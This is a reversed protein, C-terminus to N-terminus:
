NGTFVMQLNAFDRLDTDGELDFDFCACGANVGASPGSLCAIVDAHDDLDVEGDGDCDGPIAVNQTAASWFGGALAFSGGTMAGADPQGATGEIEFEGGASYGGGSDVTRWRLDLEGASVFAGSVLLGAVALVTSKTRTKM